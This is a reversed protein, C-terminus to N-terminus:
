ARWSEILDTTAEILAPAETIDPTQWFAPGTVARADVFRGAERWANVRAQSAPGLAAEGDAAVELWGIGAATDPVWLEADELGQALAPTVGYGIVEVREGASLRERLERTTTKTGTGQVIQTGVRLRLFQQLHQSGSVVPQWLLFARPEPLSRAAESLVLCGARLGWLVPASGLARRMWADVAIVDDVWDRWTADAFDGASDGCGFLDMQLVTWGARCFARAQLAAMRRCRNLEEAFPHVYLIAGRSARKPKHLLCFRASERVPLFFADATSM